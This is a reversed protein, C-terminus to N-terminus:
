VDPSLVGEKLYAEITDRWSVVIIELIDEDDDVSVHIALQSLTDLEQQTLTNGLPLKANM